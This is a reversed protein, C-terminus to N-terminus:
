QMTITFCGIRAGANRTKHSEENDGKGLDDEKEHIVVGRGGIFGKNGVELSALGDGLIFNAYGNDDAGINGLDGVHRHEVDDSLGGHLVGYPNFHRGANKCDEKISEDGSEHIHFGHLGPTLGAVLGDIRVVPDVPDVCQQFKINAEINTHNNQFISCTATAYKNCECHCLSVASLTAFVILLFKMNDSTQIWAVSGM